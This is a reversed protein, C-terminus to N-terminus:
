KSILFYHSISTNAAIAQNPTRPIATIFLRGWSFDGNQEICTQFTVQNGGQYYINFIQAATYVNGSNLDAFNSNTSHSDIAKYRNLYNITYYAVKGDGYIIRVEQGPKLKIFNEGALNDHALLGIVGYPIAMSFQTIIGVTPSVYGPNSASQQVVKYAMVGPVYVGSVVGSRGDLVTTIFDSFEPLSKGGAAKVPIFQFILIYVFVILVFLKFSFRGKL